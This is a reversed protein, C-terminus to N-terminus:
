RAPEGFVTDGINIPATSATILGISIRPQAVLVLLDGVKEQPLQVPSGSVKDAIIRGARMISLQTGTKLGQEQGISIGVVQNQAAEHAGNRIYIIDGSLKQTPSIPRLHPDITRAPKLRDGRSMEAFARTVVAREIGNSAESEVRVQGMHEVLLGIKKGTQPDNIADTTRFVDFLTGPTAPQDLKLYVRDHAGFNLREDPSALIHGVGQEQEPLIFDQRELATLLMASDTNEALREVPRIIVQPMPRVTTLGSQHNPDFWIKNGPYILDPNTIYLNKEWIRLWQMPDKFFYNAIDWLTDGKKVIYPQPLDPKINAIGAPAATAAAQVSVIPIMLMTILGALLIHRFKM